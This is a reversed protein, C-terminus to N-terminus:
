APVSKKRKKFNDLCSKLYIEHAQEQENMTWLDKAMQIVGCKTAETSLKRYIDSGMIEMIKAGWMAARYGMFFCGAAISQGILFLIFDLFRNSSEQYQNMMKELALKHVKEETRMRKIMRREESGFPLSRFHGSYANIAGIEIAHASKLM